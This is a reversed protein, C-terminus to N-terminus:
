ALCNLLTIFVRDRISGGGAICEVELAGREWGGLLQPERRRELSLCRGPSHKLTHIKSDTIECLSAWLFDEVLAEQSGNETSTLCSVVWQQSLCVRHISSYLWAAFAAGSSQTVQPLQWQTGVTTIMLSHCVSFSSGQATGAGCMGLVLSMITRCPEPCLVRCFTESIGRPGQQRWTSPFCSFLILLLRSPHFFFLDLFSFLHTVSSLPM